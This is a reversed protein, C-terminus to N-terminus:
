QQVVPQGSWTGLVALGFGDRRDQEDDSICQMWIQEIWTSLAEERGELALFFVTGAPALRRSPKPRKLALDWGSVIQPRDIAVAQITAKIGHEAMQTHLWTPLYGKQFYAPTLLILRCRKDRTIIQALPAPYIPLQASSKRWTVIRREGGFGTLGARIAYDSDDTAIALALRKANRLRQKDSGPGPATFELSSTEFLMGDKAVEKGAEISVHIRQEQELGRLGLDSLTQEEKTLTSPDLLWAEFAKWYWYSPIGQLPKSQENSAPQGVLLLEQRKLDTQASEPLQLPLLQQVRATQKGPEMSTLLLADRPARLLWQGPAIDGDNNALQILLPGRICLQKLHDLETKDDKTYKFTGQEDLGARTRIGGAITSPFPFSLSTARTGPGNGFPRGDRVLLPDRPEMIWITM